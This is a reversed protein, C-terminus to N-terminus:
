LGILVTLVHSAFLATPDTLVIPHYSHYSRVLDNILPGSYLETAPKRTSALARAAGGWMLPSNSIASAAYVGTGTGTGSSAAGAAAPTTGTAAAGGGSTHANLGAIAALQNQRMENSDLQSVSASVVRRHHGAAGGAAAAYSIPAGGGSLLNRQSLPQILPSGPTVPTSSGGTGAVAAGAGASAAPIPGGRLRHRSMSKHLQLRKTLPATGAPSSTGAAPGTTNTIVIAPNATPHVPPTAGPTTLPSTLVRAVGVENNSSLPPGATTVTTGSGASGAGGGTGSGSGVTTIPQAPPSGGSVISKKRPPITLAMAM